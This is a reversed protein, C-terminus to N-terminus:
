NGVRVSADADVRVPVAVLWEGECDGRDCYGDQWRFRAYHVNCTLHQHPTFIMHEQQVALPVGFHACRNAFASVQGDSQLLLISFQGDGSLNYAGPLQCIRVEGDRLADLQCILSGPAPANPLTRWDPPPPPVVSPLPLNPQSM